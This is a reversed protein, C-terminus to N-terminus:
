KYNLTIPFSVEASSSASTAVVDAPYGGIGVKQERAAAIVPQLGSSINQPQRSFLVLFERPGPREVHFTGSKPVTYPVSAQVRENAIPRWDGSDTQEFVYLFGSENPELRIVAQDTTDLAQGQNVPAFEGNPLKKLIAYRVTLPATAVAARAFAQPRTLAAATATVAAAPPEEPRPHTLTQALVDNVAAPLQRASPAATVVPPPPLPKIKEAQREPFPLATPLDSKAPQPLEAQSVVTIPPATRVPWFRVGVFAIVVACAAATIIGPHVDRYYWPKPVEDLAALLNRRAAPDALLERLPEERVLAEYLQQDELAAAFLSRREEPTLTGAAYGGLLKEAEEPKM